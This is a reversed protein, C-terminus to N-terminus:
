EGRKEENALSYVLYYALLAIYIQAELPDTNLSINEIKVGMVNYKFRLERVFHEEVSTSLLLVNEYGLIQEPTQFYAKIDLRRLVDVFYMSVPELLKSSSIFIKKNHIVHELKDIYKYILEEIIPTLGEQIHEYLRIGRNGLKKSYLKGMVYYISISSVLTSILEDSPEIYLVNYRNLISVLREDRPKTTILLSNYGTLRSTELLNITTSSYPNSSFFVIGWNERYPLVYYSLTNAENFVINKDPDMTITFWYMISAPLYGHRYYTIMINGPLKAFFEYLENSLVHSKKELNEIFKIYGTINSQDRLKQLM